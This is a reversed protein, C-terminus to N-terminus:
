SSAPGLLAILETRGNARAIDAPTRGEHDRRSPDADAAVLETIMRRNGRQAAQHLATWGNSDTTNPNAGYALVLRAQKFQGWRVLENLIPRNGQTAEDLNAGRKILLEVVAEDGSWVAPPISATPDAGHDLLLALVEIQGSNIAFYAVDVDDGWSRVNARTDSGAEILRRAIAILHAASDQDHRGLRSGACCQLATLGGVDRAIAVNRDAVIAADLDEPQACAAFTYGDLRAGAAVLVKVYEREGVFAAVILARALPWGGLSEPDAGNSLLWELCRIREASSRSGQLPDEQLLAHIARYNRYSANLDAGERALITLGERWALRGADVVARPPISGSLEKVAARLLRKDRSHISAILAASDAM